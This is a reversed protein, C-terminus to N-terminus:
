KRNKRRSQPPLENLAIILKVDIGRGGGTPEWAHLTRGDPSLWASQVSGAIPLDLRRAPEIVGNLGIPAIYICAAFQGGDERTFLM